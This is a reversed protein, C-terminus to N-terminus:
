LKSLVEDVKKKIIEKYNNRLWISSNYMFLGARHGETYNNQYFWYHRGEKNIHTSVIPGSNYDNLPYKDKEPHPNDKGNEGTGFEDYIVKTGKIYARYGKDTKEVGITPTGGDDFGKTNYYESIKDATMEALEKPITEKLDNVEKKLVNLRKIADQISNHYLAVNIKAM